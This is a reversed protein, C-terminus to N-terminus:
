YVLVPVQALHLKMGPPGSSALSTACVRARDERTTVQDTSLEERGPDREGLFHIDLSSGPGPCSLFWLGFHGM